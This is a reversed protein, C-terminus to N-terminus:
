PRPLRFSFSAGKNSNSRKVKICSVEFNYFIWLLLEDRISNGRYRPERDLPRIKEREVRKERQLLWNEVGNFESPPTREHCNLQCCNCAAVGVKLTNKKWGVKVRREIFWIASRFSISNRQRRVKGIYIVGVKSSKWTVHFVLKRDFKGAM